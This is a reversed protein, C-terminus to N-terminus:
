STTQVEGSVNLGVDPCNSAHEVLSVKGKSNIAISVREGNMRGMVERNDPNSWITFQGERTAM